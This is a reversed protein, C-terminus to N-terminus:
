RTSVALEPLNVLPIKLFHLAPAIVHNVWTNEIMQFFEPFQVRNPMDVMTYQRPSQLGGLM